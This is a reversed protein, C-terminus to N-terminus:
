VNGIAWRGNVNQVLMTAGRQRGELEVLIQAVPRGLRVGGAEVRRGVDAASLASEASKLARLVAAQEGDIQVNLTRYRYLLGTLEGIAGAGGDSVVALAARVLTPLLDLNEDPIAYYTDKRLLDRDIRRSADPLTHHAGVVHMAVISAAEADPPAGNGAQRMAAEVRETLQDVTLQAM